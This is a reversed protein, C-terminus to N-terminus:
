VTEEPSRITRWAGIAFKAVWLLVPISSAIMIGFSVKTPLGLISLLAWELGNVVALAAVGVLITASITVIMAAILSSQTSM